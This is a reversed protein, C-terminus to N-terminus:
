RLGKHLNLILRADLDMDDRRTIRIQQETEDPARIVISFISRM